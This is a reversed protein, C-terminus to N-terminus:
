PGFVALGSLEFSDLMVVALAWCPRTASLASLPGFFMQCLRQRMSAKLPGSLRWVLWLNFDIQHTEFYMLFLCM